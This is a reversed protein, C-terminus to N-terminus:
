LFHDTQSASSPHRPAPRGWEARSGASRRTRLGSRPRRPPMHRPTRAAGSTPLGAQPANRRFGTARRAPPVARRAVAASARTPKPRRWRAPMPAPAPPTSRRTAPAQRPSSPSPPRPVPPTAPPGCAGAAPSARRAPAAPPARRSSAAAAPANTTPTSATARAPSQGASARVARVPRRQRDNGPPAADIRRWAGRGPAHHQQAEGRGTRPQRRHLVVVEGIVESQWPLQHQMTAIREVRAMLDPRERRPRAVDQLSDRLHQRPPFRAARQVHNPQESVAAPRELSPPKSPRFAAMRQAAIATNALRGITVANSPPICVSNGAVATITASATNTRSSRSWPRPRAASIAPASSNPRNHASLGSCATSPM